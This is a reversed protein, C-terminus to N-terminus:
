RAASEATPGGYKASHANAYFAVTELQVNATGGLLMFRARQAKRRNIAETMSNPSAHGVRWQADLAILLRENEIAEETLAVASSTATRIATEERAPLLLYLEELLLLGSTCAQRVVVLRETPLPESEIGKSLEASEDRITLLVYEAQRRMRRIREQMALNHEQGRREKEAVLEQERAALMERETFEAGKAAGYVSAAIAVIPSVLVGIWTGVLIMWDYWDHARGGHQAAQAVAESAATRIELAHRVSDPVAM